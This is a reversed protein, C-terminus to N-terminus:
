NVAVEKVDTFPVVVENKEVIRPATVAVILVRVAPFM